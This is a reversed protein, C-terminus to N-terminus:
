SCYSVSMSSWCELVYTSGVFECWARVGTSYSYGSHTEGHPFAYSLGLEARTIQRCEGVFTVVRDSKRLLLKGLKYWTTMNFSVYIRTRTRAACGLTFTVSLGRDDLWDLVIAFTVESCMQLPLPNGRLLNVLYSSLFGKDLCLCQPCALLGSRNWSGGCWITTARSGVKAKRRCCGWLGTWNLELPRGLSKWVSM